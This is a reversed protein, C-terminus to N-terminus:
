FRKKMGTTNRCHNCLLNVRFVTDSSGGSITRFCTILEMELNNRTEVPGSYRTKTMKPDLVFKNIETSVHLNLPHGTM